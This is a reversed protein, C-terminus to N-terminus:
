DRGFPRKRSRVSNNGGTGCRVKDGTAVMKQLRPLMREIVRCAVRGNHTFDIGDLIDDVMDGDMDGGYGVAVAGIAQLKRVKSAIATDRTAAALEYPFVEYLLNCYHLLEPFADSETLYAALVEEEFKRLLYLGKLGPLRDALPRGMMLFLAHSVIIHNEDPHLASMWKRMDKYPKKEMM